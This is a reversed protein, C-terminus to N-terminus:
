CPWESFSLHGRSGKMRGGVFGRVGEGSGFHTICGADLGRSGGREFDTIEGELIGASRVGRRAGPGSGPRCRRKKSAANAQYCRLRRAFRLTQSRGEREM